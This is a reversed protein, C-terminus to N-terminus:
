TISHIMQYTARATTANGRITAVTGASNYIEIENKVKDGANLQTMYNARITILLTEKQTDGYNQSM